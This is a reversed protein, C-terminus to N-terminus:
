RAGCRWEIDSRGAECRSRSESENCRLECGKRRLGPLAPAVRVVDGASECRHRVHDKRQGECAHGHAEAIKRGAQVADSGEVFRDPTSSTEIRRRCSFWLQSTGADHSERDHQERRPMAVESREMEPRGGARADRVGYSRSQAATGM